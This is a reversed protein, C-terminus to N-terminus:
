PLTLYDHVGLLSALILLVVALPRISQRWAGPLRARASPISFMGALVALGALGLTIPDM